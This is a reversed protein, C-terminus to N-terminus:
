GTMKFAFAELTGVVPHETETTAPRDKLRTHALTLNPSDKLSTDVHIDALATFQLSDAPLEL